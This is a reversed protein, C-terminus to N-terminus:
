KYNKALYKVFSGHPEDPKQATQEMKAAEAKMRFIYQWLKKENEDMAKTRRPTKEKQM